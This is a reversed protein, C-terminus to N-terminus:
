EFRTSAIELPCLSRYRRTSFRTGAWCSSATTTLGNSTAWTRTPVRYHAAEELDWDLFWENLNDCVCAAKGPDFEAMPRLKLAVRLEILNVGRGTTYTM